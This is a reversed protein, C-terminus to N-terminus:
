DLVNGAGPNDAFAIENTHDRRDLPVRDASGSVQLHRPLLHRRQWAVGVDVVLHARGLRVVGDHGLGPIHCRREPFRGMDRKGRVMPRVLRVRRKSRTARDCLDSRVTGHDHARRLTHIACAIAKGRHESQWDGLHANLVVFSRARKTAAAVVIDGLGRRDHGLRDALRYAHLEHTLVFVAPVVVAGHMKGVHAATDVGISLNHGKLVVAPLM